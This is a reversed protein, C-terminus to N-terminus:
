YYFFFLVFIKLFYIVIKVIDFVYLKIFISINGIYRLKYCVSFEIERIFYVFYWKKYLIDFINYM